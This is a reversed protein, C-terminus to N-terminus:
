SRMLNTENAETSSVGEATINNLRYDTKCKSTAMVCSNALGRVARSLMRYPGVYLFRSNELDPQVREYIQPYSKM